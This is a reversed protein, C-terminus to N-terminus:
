KNLEQYIEINKVEATKEITIDNNAEARKILYRTTKRMNKLLEEESPILSLKWTAEYASSHMPAEIFKFDSFLKENETTKEFLSSLRIFNASESKALTKLWSLLADLADRKSFGDAIIPGHPVFLFRGRKASIKIVLCLGALNIGQYIGVRWIKSGMKENFDGWNWSQLFTKETQFSLFKEWEVKNKIEKIEM